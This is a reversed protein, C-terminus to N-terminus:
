VLAFGIINVNRGFMYWVHIKGNISNLAKLTISQETFLKIPKGPLYGTVEQRYWKTGSVLHCLSVLGPKLPSRPFYVVPHCKTYLDVGHCRPTNRQQIQFWM